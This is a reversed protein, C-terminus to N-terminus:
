ITARAGVLETLALVEGRESVWRLDSGRAAPDFRFTRTVLSRTLAKTVVFLLYADRLKRMKEYENPTLEFGVDSGSLGKVEIMVVKGASMAEIDWGRRELSVDRADDFYLMAANMAAQEVQLRKETDPQRPAGKRSVKQRSTTTTGGGDKVAARVLAVVDPHKEAYWVPSQGLGGDGRIPILLRGREAVPVLHADKSRARIPTEVKLEGYDVVYNVKRHVTANRYWGVVAHQHSYPDHSIFVVLVGQIFDDAPAAGLRTINIGSSRPVYGHVWGNTPRFNFQEHGAAANNKQKNFWGFNKAILPDADSHGQYKKMWGTNVFVIPEM